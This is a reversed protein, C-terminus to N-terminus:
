KGEGKVSKEEIFQDLDVSLWVYNAMIRGVEGQLRLSQFTSYKPVKIWKRWVVAVLVRPVLHANASKRPVPAPLVRVVLNKVHPVAITKLSIKLYTTLLYSCNAARRRQSLPTRNNSQRIFSFRLRRLSGLPWCFYFRSLWRTTKFRSTNKSTLLQPRKTSSSKLFTNTHIRFISDASKMQKHHIFDIAAFEAM